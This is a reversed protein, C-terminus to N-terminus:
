PVNRVRAVGADDVDNALKLRKPERHLDMIRQRVSGIGPMLKPHRQGLQVRQLRCIGDNGRDGM